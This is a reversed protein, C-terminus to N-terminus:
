CSRMRQMSHVFEALLRSAGMGPAGSVALERPGVALAESWAARLTDMPAERGVFPVAGQVDLEVPTPWCPVDSCDVYLGM